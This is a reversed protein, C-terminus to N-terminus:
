KSMVVRNGTTLDILIVGTVAIDYVFARDNDLDLDVYYPSIFVPGTGVGSGSIVTRDGTALDIAM